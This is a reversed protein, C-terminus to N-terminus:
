FFSINKSVMGEFLLCGLCIWIHVHCIYHLGILAVPIDESSSSIFECQLTWPSEGLCWQGTCSGFSGDRLWMDPGRCWGQKARGSVTQNCPLLVRATVLAGVKARSSSHHIMLVRIIMIMWYNNNDNDDHNMWTENTNNDHTHTDNM